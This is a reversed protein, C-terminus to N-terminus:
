CRDSEEPPTTLKPQGWGSQGAALGGQHPQCTRSPTPSCTSAMQQNNQLHSECVATRSPEGTEQGQVPPVPVSTRRCGLLLHPGTHGQWSTLWSQQASHFAFLALATVNEPQLARSTRPTCVPAGSAGARRAPGAPQRGVGRGPGCAPLLQGRRRQATPLVDPSLVPQPLSKLVRRRACRAASVPHHSGPRSASSGSRALLPLAASFVPLCQAGRLAWWEGDRGGKGERGEQFPPGRRSACDPSRDEAAPRAPGVHHPALRPQRPRLRSRPAKAFEPGM